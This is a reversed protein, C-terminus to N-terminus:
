PLNLMRNALAANHFESVSFKFFSFFSFKLLLNNIGENTAIFRLLEILVKILM